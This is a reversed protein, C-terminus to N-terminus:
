VYFFVNYYFIWVFRLLCCFFFWVFFFGVLGWGFLVVAVVFVGLGLLTLPQVSHIKKEEKDTTQPLILSYYEFFM